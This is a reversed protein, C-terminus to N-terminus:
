DGALSRVAAFAAILAAFVAVARRPGKRRNKWCGATLAMDKRGM